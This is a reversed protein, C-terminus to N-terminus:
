MRTNEKGFGVNIHSNKPRSKGRSKGGPKKIQKYIISIEPSERKRLFKKFIKKRNADRKRPLPQAPGPQGAFQIFFISAM